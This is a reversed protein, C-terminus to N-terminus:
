DVGYLSHQESGILLGAAFMSIGFTVIGVALLGPKFHRYGFFILGMSLGIGGWRLIALFLRINVPIPSIGMSIALLIPGGVFILAFITGLIISALVMAGTESQKREVKVELKRYILTRKAWL